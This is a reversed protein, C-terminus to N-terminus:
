YQPPAYIDLTRLPEMSTCRIEHAEGAEILLLTGPRLPAVTGNVVAEGEGSLVYLWQDGDHRNDPGGESTATDIVMVAAQSRGTGAIVKFEDLAHIRMVKM